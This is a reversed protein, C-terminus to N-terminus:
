LVSVLGSLCHREAATPPYSVFGDDRVRVPHLYMSCTVAADAAVWPLVM